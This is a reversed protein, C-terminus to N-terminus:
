YYKRKLVSLRHKYSKRLTEQVEGQENRTLEEMYIPNNELAESASWDVALLEDYQDDYTGQFEPICDKIICMEIFSFLFPISLLMMTIVGFLFNYFLFERCFEIYLDRTEKNETAAFMPM